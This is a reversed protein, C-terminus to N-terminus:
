GMQFSFCINWSNVKTVEIKIAKFVCVIAQKKPPSGCQGWYLTFITKIICVEEFVMKVVKLDFEIAPVYLAGELVKTWQQYKIVWHVM